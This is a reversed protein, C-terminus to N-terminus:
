DAPHLEPDVGQGAIMRVEVAGLARVHAVQDVQQRTGLGQAEVGDPEVLVV